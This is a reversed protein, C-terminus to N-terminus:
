INFGIVGIEMTLAIHYMTDSEAIQISLMAQEFLHYLHYCM